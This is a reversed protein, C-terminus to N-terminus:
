LWLGAAGIVVLALGFSVMIWRHSPRAPTRFLNARHAFRGASKNFVVTLIGGVLLLGYAPHGM